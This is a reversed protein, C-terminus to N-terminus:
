SFFSNHYYNAMKSDESRAKRHTLSSFSKIIQSGICPVNRLFRAHHKPVHFEKRAAIVLSHLLQLSAAAAVEALFLASLGLQTLRGIEVSLIGKGAVAASALWVALASTVRSAIDLARALRELTRM